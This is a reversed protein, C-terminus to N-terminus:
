AAAKMAAISRDWVKFTLAVVEPNADWSEAGHLSAWLQAFARARVNDIEGPDGNPWKISHNRTAIGEALADAESIEQVREIKTSIVTLTIRSLARPLFISPRKHFGMATKKNAPTFYFAEAEDAFVVGGVGLLAKTVRGPRFCWRPRGTKTKGDRYWRGWRWHQERVWLLDGAKVRQWPSTRRFGTMQVGRIKKAKGETWALRRTMTKGTGPKAVERLLAAIMAESFIVPHDKVAM